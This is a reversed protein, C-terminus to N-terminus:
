NSISDVERWKNPGFGFKVLAMNKGSQNQLDQVLGSLGWRNHVKDGVCIKNGRNNVVCLRAKEAPTQSGQVTNRRTNSAVATTAAAQATQPTSAVTTTAPPVTGAPAGGNRVAAAANQLAAALQNAVPNTGASATATTGLSGAAYYKTQINALADATPKLVVGQAEETETSGIMQVQEDAYHGLIAVETVPGLVVEVALVKSNSYAQIILSAEKIQDREINKLEVRGASALDPTAFQDPDTELSQSDVFDNNIRLFFQAGGIGTKAKVRLMQLELQGSTVAAPNIKKIEKLLDVRATDDSTSVEFSKQTLALTLTNTAQARAMLGIAFTVLFSLAAITINRM